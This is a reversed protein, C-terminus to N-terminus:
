LAAAVTRNRGDWHGWRAAGGLRALRAHALQAKFSEISKLM